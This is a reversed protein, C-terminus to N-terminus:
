IHREVDTFMILYDKIGSGSAQGEPPDLDQPSTSQVKSSGPIVQYLYLPRPAVARAPVNRWSTTCQCGSSDCGVCTLCWDENRPSEACQKQKQREPPQPKQLRTDGGKKGGGGRSGVATTVSWGVIFPPHLYFCDGTTWPPLSAMERGCTWKLNM